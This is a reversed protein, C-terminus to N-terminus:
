PSSDQATAPDTPRSWVDRLLRDTLAAGILSSLLDRFVQLLAGGGAAAEAPPRMALAAHLASADIAAPAVPPGTALWPHRASALALSRDYLAAVGRHGIIPHLSLDIDRWVAAVADAVQGADVDGHAALRRDLPEPWRQAHASTSAMHRLRTANISVMKRGRMAPGAVLLEAPCLRSV